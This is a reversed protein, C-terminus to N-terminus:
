FKYYVYKQASDPGQARWHGGEAAQRQEGEGEQVGRDEEEVAAENGGGDNGGARGGTAGGLSGSSISSTKCHCSKTSLHSLLKLAPSVPKM